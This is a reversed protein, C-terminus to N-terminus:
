DGTEAPEEAPETALAADLRAIARDTIDFGEVELIVAGPRLVAIIGEEEMMRILIPAAQNFFRQAESESFQQLAQNARAREARISEVRQDFADARARFDEPSLTPRLDTLAQEEAALTDFLRQNEAELDAEAARIGALIRQGVRSQGFLREEDLMRLPMAPAAAQAAAAPATPSPSQAPLPSPSPSQAFVSVAPASALVGALILRAGIGLM